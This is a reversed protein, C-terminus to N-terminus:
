YFHLYRFCKIRLIKKLRNMRYKWQLLSAKWNELGNHGTAKQSTSASYLTVWFNEENKYHFYCTGLSLIWINPNKEQWVLVSGHSRFQPIFEVTVDRYFMRAAVTNHNKKKKKVQWLVFFAKKSMYTLVIGRPLPEIKKTMVVKFMDTCFYFFCLEINRLPDSNKKWWQFHTKRCHM